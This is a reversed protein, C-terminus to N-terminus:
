IFMIQTPLSHRHPHKWILNTNSNSQTFSTARGLTTPRWKRWFTFSPLIQERGTQASINTKQGQISISVMPKGPEWVKPGLNFWAELKGPNGTQLHCTQSKSVKMIINRMIVRGEGGRERERVCVCMTEWTACHYPVWRGFFSTGSIYTQNRSWSSGGSYFIAVWELIRAQFIAHISSGPPSCDHPRLSDSMVLRAHVSMCVYMLISQKM